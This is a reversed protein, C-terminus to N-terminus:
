GMFVNSLRNPGSPLNGGGGNRVRNVVASVWRGPSARGTAASGSSGNSLINALNSQHGIPVINAAGGAGNNFVNVPIVNPAVNFASASPGPSMSYNGPGNNPITTTASFLDPHFAHKGPFLWSLNHDLWTWSIDESSAM